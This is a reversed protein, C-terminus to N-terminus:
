AEIILHQVHYDILCIVRESRYFISYEEIGACKSIEELYFQINRFNDVSEFMVKFENAIEIQYFSIIINSIATTTSKM